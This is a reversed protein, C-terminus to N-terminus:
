VAGRRNKKKSMRSHRDELNEYSTRSHRLRYLNCVDIPVSSCISGRYVRDDDTDPFPQETRRPRIWKTGECYGRHAIERSVFQLGGIGMKLRKLFYPKLNPHFVEGPNIRAIEEDGAEHSLMMHYHGPFVMEHPKVAEFDTAAIADLAGDCFLYDADSFHCIDAECEKASINRGIARRFLERKPLTRARLSANLKHQRFHQKFAACVRHTLQDTEATWVQFEVHCTQPPWLVLSSLQATFLAAYDPISEAYVHVVCCVTKM